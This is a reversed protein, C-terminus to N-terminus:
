IVKENCNTIISQKKTIKEKYGIWPLSL